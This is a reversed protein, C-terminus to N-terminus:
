GAGFPGWWILAMGLVLTAVITAVVYAVVSGYYVPTFWAYRERFEAPLLLFRFDRFAVPFFFRFRGGADPEERSRQGTTRMLAVFVPICVFLVGLVWLSVLVVWGVTTTPVGHMDHLPATGFDRSQAFLVVTGIILFVPISFYAVTPLRVPAPPEDPGVDPVDGEPDPEFKAIRRGSPMTGCKWCADFQDDLQESCTPCTWM